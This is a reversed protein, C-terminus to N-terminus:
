FSLKLGSSVLATNNTLGPLRAWRVEVLGVSFKGTGTPDYNVGGGAFLALHQQNPGSQPVVRDVGISGTVYFQLKKADLTSKALLKSSPLVYQVGGAYAQTDNGPALIAEGRLSLNPSLAYTAGTMSAAVTQGGGPLSMAQATISFKGANTPPASQGMAPLCACVVAAVCLIFRKM